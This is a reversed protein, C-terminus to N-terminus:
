SFTIVPRAAGRVDPVWDKLTLILPKVACPERMRGLADAAARRVTWHKDELADILPKVVRPHKIGGLEVAARTRRRLDGTKLERILIGVRDVTPHVLASLCFLLFLLFVSAAKWAKLAQKNFFHKRKRAGIVILENM